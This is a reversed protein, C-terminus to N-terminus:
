VIRDAFKTSLDESYSGEPYPLMRREWQAYADRLAGLQEPQLKSLDAREREDRSLDFLFERSGVRLYKWAGNRVAGQQRAKHRWFLTRVTSRSPTKLYALMNLGDVSTMDEASGAAATLTPVMDMSVIAQESTAGMPINGPWAAIFPVRIGGELLDGKMGTLPWNDSFREGGNDSTFIVLTDQEMGLRKLEALVRGINADLSETMRAYTAINGGSSDRADLGPVSRHADDPGQWPWHPATFHLSLFLPDASRRSAKIQEIAVDALLETLYGQRTTTTTNEYLAGM